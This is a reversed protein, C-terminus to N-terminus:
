PGPVEAVRLEGLGEGGGLSIRLHYTIRSHPRPVESLEKMNLHLELFKSSIWSATRVGPFVGTDDWAMDGDALAETGTM